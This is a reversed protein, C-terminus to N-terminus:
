CWASVAIVGLSVQGVHFVKLAVEDVVVDKVEAALGVGAPRRAGGVSVVIARILVGPAFAAM